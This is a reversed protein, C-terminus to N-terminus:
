RGTLAREGEALLWDIGETPKLKLPPVTKIDQRTSGVSGTCMVRQEIVFQEVVARAGPLRSFDYLQRICAEGCALCQERAAKADARWTGINNLVGWGSLYDHHDPAYYERHGVQNDELWESRLRQQQELSPPFAGWFLTQAPISLIGDKDIQKIPIFIIVFGGCEDSMTKVLFDCASPGDFHSLLRVRLSTLFQLVPTSTPDACAVKVFLADEHSGATVIDLSAGGLMEERRLGEPSALQFIKYSSLSGQWVQTHQTVGISSAIKPNQGIDLM